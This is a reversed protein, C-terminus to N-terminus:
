PATTAFSAPSAGFTFNASFADKTGNGDLDIDAYALFTAQFATPITIGADDLLQLLTATPITMGITGSNTLATATGRVAVVANAPLPVGAISVAQGKLRFEYQGNKISSAARVRANGDAAVAAPDVAFVESGNFNDSTDADTDTGALIGGFILSDSQFKQVNWLEIVVVQSSTQVAGLLVTNLDVQVGIGALATALQGLANDGTKDGDLDLAANSTANQMSSIVWTYAGGDDYPTFTAGSKTGAVATKMAATPTADTTLALTAALKARNAVIKARVKADLNQATLALDMADRTTVLDALYGSAATAFAAKVADTEPLVPLPDAIKSAAAMSKLENGFSKANTPKHVLHEAARLKKVVPPQASLAVAASDIAAEVPETRGSVGHALAGTAAVVVVALSGLAAVPRRAHRM